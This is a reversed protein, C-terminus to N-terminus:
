MIGMLSGRVVKIGVFYWGDNKRKRKLRGNLLSNLGRASIKPEGISTLFYNFQSLFESVRIEASPDLECCDELFQNMIDMDSRYTEIEQRVKDPIRLGNRQWDLSHRVLWTLIGDREEKLKSALLPDIKEDPVIYGFKVLMLRRMLAADGGQIDPKWNTVMTLLAEIRFSQSTQYLQRGKVTDGGTLEKILAANLKEGYPTETASIFRRGKMEAIYNHISRSSVMLIESRIVDSYDGLVHAIVDVLVSKGNKGPGWLLLMKQERTDGTLAMGFCRGLFDIMESDELMTESLFNMFLPCQAETTFSAPSIKTTLREPDHPLLQGSRLDVVGNQCNMLYPHVDLDEASVAITPISKVEDLMGSPNDLTRMAFGMKRKANKETNETLM